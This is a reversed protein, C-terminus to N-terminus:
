FQKKSVVLKGERRLLRRYGLLHFLEAAFFRAVRQNIHYAESENPVEEVGPLLVLLKELKVKRLFASLNLWSRTVSRLLFFGTNSQEDYRPLFVFGNERALVTANNSNALYQGKNIRQFNSYGPVMKFDEEGEVLHRATVEFVHQIGQSAVLLRRHMEEFEPVDNKHILGNLVLTVWIFSLTNDITQQQGIQGGEFGIARHGMENLFSHMTGKVFSDIGLIVPLPYRFSLKRNYLRDNIVIHPVSRAGTAHLNVFIVRGRAKGIIEEFCNMLEKLEPDESCLFTNNRNVNDLREMTWIRNLDEDIFRQKKQLAARNGLVAYVDGHLKMGGADVLHSVNDMVESLAELGDTENGHLGAVFVITYGPRVGHVSNLVRGSEFCKSTM